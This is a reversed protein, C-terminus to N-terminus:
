MNPYNPGGGGEPTVWVINQTPDKIDCTKCHVCNQANIQLRDEQQDDKVYEYVGAPCFRSEPGAYTRLNVNVPVSTDRLTLHAPQNEEHNTNSIFVSSLRDFTLKGDPKPYEIPQCQSAPKLTEHDRHQHRLTWPVNGGLLKQEIGVMLSGLYLGKSMWQKFNRAKYLERYLWSQKFAEPYAALEDHHRGAQLADFAAHAALMGTKIAAHSGKILSANLFGADDGVLAGGPFVLKPLSMLGGATIARAGYSVRKGGELFGRIEPHTKYRQFEEFPSLYPNRYALGVVFGVMVQNNDIHYLFSGGYTDPKLPWGATHIVLGPQHKAPDIEWLEKIGIGYVQPDANNGLKFNDNLQRGLHGRCGEGFLTYKAHLEMGLQFNGTPEGDKGIGVNGTAVGKVSGDENYLVEAAPFGPFIEVGLAEAQQGLWRTVNALSIVYNGHNKFNEPLAWNPVSKARTESLFLFRDETVPVNLPANREKWDPMLENLARPDMVAGSLIHAGIESGKELVCVGIEVNKEAALQKLRIAASLGAPGGGVIVVDYEMSERPGYGQQNSEAM